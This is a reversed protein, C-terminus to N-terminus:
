HEYSAWDPVDTLKTWHEYIEGKSNFDHSNTAEQVALYYWADPDANDPWKNMGSLLDGTEEPIRCLVRNIMTMAEARTILHDPRFTGDPYGMVWGQAAAKRIEAEAWHGSIDTFSSESAMLNVDFRACIAAFEARTIFANPDFDEASRGRIVGLAAMTAVPANYWDGPQVDTFSSAATFNQERVDSNLLRFFIAAVESRSIKDLPRVTGDPFGIIYAFHDDGNLMSPIPSARWGAYVTKNGTMKVQTIRQTLGQDSYWGTFAYGERVPTKELTVTTGSRYRESVYKAGGNSEYTLTYYTTTSGGSGSDATFSYTYTVDATIGGAATNPTIDWAGGTYGSGAKMGTPVDANDLTGKGGTLPVAVTKPTNTDDSWTGNVVQFIVEASSPVQADCIVAFTIPADATWAGGEYRLALTQASQTDPNLTHAKSLDRSYQAVYVDPQVTIQCAYGDTSSSAVAGPTYSGELLGYTKDAHGASTNVCDVTVFSGALAGSPADPKGASVDEWVAYVTLNDTPTFNQDAQYDAAGGNTKSWGLFNLGDKVLASMTTTSEGAVVTNEGVKDSGDMYTIVYYSAPDVPAGDWHAYVHLDSHNDHNFQVQSTKGGGVAATYWGAYTYGSPTTFGLDALSKLSFYTYLKSYSQIQYTFTQTYDTGDPYNSHYVLKQTWRYSGGSGIDGSGSGSNGGGSGGSGFYSVWYTIRAVSSNCSFVVNTGVNCSSYVGYWNGTVQQVRGYPQSTFKSLAPIQYNDSQIKEDGKTVTDTGVGRHLQNASIDFVDVTITIEDTPNWSAALASVPLM